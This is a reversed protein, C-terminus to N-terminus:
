NNINFSNIALPNPYNLRNYNYACYNIYEFITNWISSKLELIIDRLEAAKENHYNRRNKSSAFVQNRRKPRFTEGTYPDVLIKMNPM